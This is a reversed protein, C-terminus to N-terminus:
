FDLRIQAPESDIDSETTVSIEDAAFECGQLSSQLFWLTVEFFTSLAPFLLLLLLSCLPDLLM